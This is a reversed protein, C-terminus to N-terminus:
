SPIAAPGDLWRHHCKAIGASEKLMTKISLVLALSRCYTESFEVHHSHGLIRRCVEVADDTESGVLRRVKDLMPEQFWICDKLPQLAPASDLLERRFACLVRVPWYTAFMRRPNHYAREISTLRAARVMRSFEEYALDADQTPLPAGSAIEILTRDADPESLLCITAITHTLESDPMLLHLPLRMGNESASKSSPITLDVLAEGTVPDTGIRFDSPRTGVLCSLRRGCYLLLSVLLRFAADPPDAIPHPPPTLLGVSAFLSNPHVLAFEAKHRDRRIRVAPDASPSALQAICEYLKLCQPASEPSAVREPQGSKPPVPLGFTEFKPLRLVPLMREKLRKSAQDVAAIADVGCEAAFERLLLYLATLDPGSYRNEPPDDGALLARLLRAAKPLSRAQREATTLEIQAFRDGRLRPGYLVVLARLTAREITDRARKLGGILTTKADRGDRTRRRSRLDGAIKAVLETSRRRKGRRSPPSELQRQSLDIKSPIVEGLHGCLYATELPSAAAPCWAEFAIGIDAVTIHSFPAGLDARLRALGRRTKLRAFAKIAATSCNGTLANPVLIRCNPWKLNLRLWPQKTLAASPTAVIAAFARRSLPLALLAKLCRAPSQGRFARRLLINRLSAGLRRGPPESQCGDDTRTLSVEITDM